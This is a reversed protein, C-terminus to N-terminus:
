ARASALLAVGPLNLGDPTAYSSAAEEARARMADRAEEPLAALMKALPGALATSRAWWEDFSGAQMPVSFEELAVESLGGEALVARLADADSLAVEEVVLTRDHLREV